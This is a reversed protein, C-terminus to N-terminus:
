LIVFWTEFKFKRQYYQHYYLSIIVKLLDSVLEFKREWEAIDYEMNKKDSILTAIQARADRLQEKYIRIEKRMGSFDVSKLLM